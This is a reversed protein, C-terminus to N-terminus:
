RAREREREQIQVRCHYRLPTGAETRLEEAAAARAKGWVCWLTLLSAFVHLLVHTGLPMDEANKCVSNATDLANSLRQVKLIVDFESSTGVCGAVWMNRKWVHWSRSLNHMLLSTAKLLQTAEFHKLIDTVTMGICM